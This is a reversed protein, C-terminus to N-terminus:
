RIAAKLRQLSGLIGRPLLLALVVFLLGTALPWLALYSTGALLQSQAGKYVATGLLPGSLTQVGGLLVMALAEVSMPLALIEPAVSGRLYVHLGGALGAFGGAVAFATWRHAQRNIGIAEARLPSDRTARLTYGFPALAMTRLVLLALAVLGLVLYYLGAQQSVLGAPVLDGLWASPTLGQIGSSGGTLKVWQAAASWAVQAFLLTLIAVFAGPRRLCLWGFLLGAAIAALPAVLLSTETPLAFHRVVLAAAYAGLGLYAAHGFAAIGGLGILFQLSAAFLALILLESVSTLLAEGGIFRATFPLAMFGALIAWLAVRLPWAAPALPRSAIDQPGQSPAARGGLLGQPRFILVLAVLLFLVSLTYEPVMLIGLSGLLAIVQAALFAGPISGMGGVVVVMFATVTMDLDMGVSAPARPLQLAGGLGALATGLFVVFTSLLKQRVGLAALMDQDESAARMLAGWRTAHVLLLLVALSLIGLVILVLEYDALRSGGVVVPAFVQPAPPGSLPASGWHRPVLDRLVLLVGLSALLAYLQPARYLRRLVLLEIAVGLAGTAAAALLAVLWFSSETGGPVLRGAEAAAFYAGLMYFAGQALNVTRTVAFVMSIGVAVLFLPTADALGSVIQALSFSM